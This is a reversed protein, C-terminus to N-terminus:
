KVQMPAKRKPIPKKRKNCISCGAIYSWTDGRVGPWYFKEKIRVLTKKIGLHAATKNDHAFELIKRREKMPIVVQKLNTEPDERFLIGNQVKMVNWQTWLSKVVYSHKGTQSYSPKSGTTLWGIVTQLDKDTEQLQRIDLELDDDQGGQFQVM